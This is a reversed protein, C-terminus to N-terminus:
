VTHDRRASHRSREHMGERKTTVANCQPTQPARVISYPRRLEPSVAGSKKNCRLRLERNIAVIAMAKMETPGAGTHVAHLKAIGIGVHLVGKRKDRGNHRGRQSFKAHLYMITSPFTYESLPLNARM